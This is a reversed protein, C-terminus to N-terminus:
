VDSTAAVRPDNVQPSNAYGDAMSRDPSPRQPQHMRLLMRHHRLRRRAQPKAPHDLQGVVRGAALDAVRDAVPVAARDAVPVAVRDAVPVAVRDAALVAARDAAPSAVRDAVRVAVRDAVPVAARGATPVAKLRSKRSAELGVEAVADAAKIGQVRITPARTPSQAQDSKPLRRKRAHHHQQPAPANSLMPRQPARDITPRLRIKVRLKVKAKASAAVAVAVGAGVAVAARVRDM